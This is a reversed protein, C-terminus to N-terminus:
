RGHSGVSNQHTFSTPDYQFPPKVEKSKSMSGQPEIEDIKRAKVAENSGPLLQYMESTTAIQSKVHTATSAVKLMPLRPSSLDPFTLPQLSITSMLSTCCRITRWWYTRGQVLASDICAAYLGVALACLRSAYWNFSSIRLNSSYDGNVKEKEM